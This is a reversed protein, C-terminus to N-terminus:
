IHILSLKEVQALTLARLLRDYYKEERPWLVYLRAVGRRLLEENVLIWEGERQVWLYALLRGYSDYPYPGLEVRVNKLWVLSRNIRKAATYFPQGAEPTDVGLYRVYEYTDLVVTDGDIVRMVKASRSDAPPQACVVMFFLTFLSASALLARGRNNM